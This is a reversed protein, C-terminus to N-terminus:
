VGAPPARASPVGNPPLRFFDVTGVPRGIRPLVPASIAAASVPLAAPGSCCGVCCGLDHQAPAAPAQDGAATSTSCFSSTGFAASQAASVASFVAALTLSYAAALAILSRTRRRMSLAWHDAVTRASQLLAQSRIPLRAVVFARAM